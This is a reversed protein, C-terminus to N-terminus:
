RGATGTGPAEEPRPPVAIHGAAGPDTVVAGHARLPRAGPRFRTAGLDATNPVPIHQAGVGALGAVIDAINGLAPFIDNPGGWVTCLTTAPDFVPRGGPYTALQSQMGTGTCLMTLGYEPDAFNETTVTQGSAAHTVNMQGTQM